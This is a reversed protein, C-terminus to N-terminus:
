EYYNLCMWDKCSVDNNSGVEEAALPTHRNGNTRLLSAIIMMMMMMMMGETVCGREIRVEAPLPELLLPPTDDGLTLTRERPSSPATAAGRSQAPAAHRRLVPAALAIESELADADGARAAAALAGWSARADLACAVRSARRRLDDGGDATADDDGGDGGRAVAATAGGGGRVDATPTETAGDGDDRGGCAAAASKDRALAARLREATACASAAAVSAARPAAAAAAGADAAATGEAAEAEAGGAGDVGAAATASGGSGDLAAAALEAELVAHCNRHTRLLRGMM